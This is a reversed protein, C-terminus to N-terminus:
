PCASRDVRSITDIDFLLHHLYNLVRDSVAFWSASTEEGRVHGCLSFNASSHLSKAVNKLLDEVNDYKLPRGDAYASGMGAGCKGGEFQSCHVDKREAWIAIVLFVIFIVYIIISITRSTAANAMEFYFRLGKVLISFRSLINFTKM